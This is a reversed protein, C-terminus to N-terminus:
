KIKTPDRGLKYLAKELADIRMLLELKAKATYASKDLVQVKKELTQYRVLLEEYRKKYDRLKEVESILLPMQENISKELTRFQERVEDLFLDVEEPDYGPAKAVFKKNLIELSTLPNKNKM